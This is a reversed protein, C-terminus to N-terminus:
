EDRRAEKAHEAAAKLRDAENSATLADERKNIADAESDLQELRARQERAAVQAQTAQAAERAETERKNAVEAARRERTRRQEEAASREQQARRSAQSRKQEAQQKREDAQRKREDAQRKRTAAEDRQDAARRQRTATQQLQDDQTAKGAVERAAADARDATARVSNEEAAGNSGTALKLAQELPLRVIKLSTSVVTRPIALLDM